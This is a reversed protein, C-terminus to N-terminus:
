SPERTRRLARQKQWRDEMLPQRQRVISEAKAGAPCMGVANPDVILPKVERVQRRVNANSDSGLAAPAPGSSREPVAGWTILNSASDNRHVRRGAASM